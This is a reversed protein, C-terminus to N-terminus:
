LSLCREKREAATENTVNTHEKSGEQTGDKSDEEEINDHKDDHYIDEDSVGPVHVVTHLVLHITSCGGDSKENADRTNHEEESQRPDKTGEGYFATRECEM